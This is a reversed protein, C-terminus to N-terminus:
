SFEFFRSSARQVYPDPLKELELLRGLDFTPAGITLNTAARRLYRYPIAVHDSRMLRLFTAARRQVGAASVLARKGSLVDEYEKRSRLVELGVPYDRDAWISALVVAVGLVSFELAATGNWLFATDVFEALEHTNFADHELFLVNRPLDPVVLERLLQVGQVVIEKRLEHPHPKILLLNDTGTVAEILHNIWSVFDDHAFGRDGPAAFDISVKGLAVFVKGGDARVKQVRRSVHERSRSSEGVNSRDQCIWSMLQDDPERDLHPNEALCAEMRHLGGLYPQRVEPQATLDEVALTTAERSTLNSFYNEYGVSIAVAHIGHSRGIQVCWERIIGQPAFHSDMLAIRIPRSHDALTLLKECLTLAVDARLQLAAFRKASEPDTLDTVRYKRAQQSLREQFYAFYNIGGAEAIGAGWDIRWERSLKQRPAGVFSKGDPAVCGQLNDFDSIRLVQTTLTGQVAAALGYGQEMLPRVLPVMLGTLVPNGVNYILVFGKVNTGTPATIKEVYGNATLHLRAVGLRRADRNRMEDTYDRPHLQQASILDEFVSIALEHHGGDDLARGIGRRLGVSADSFDTEALIKAALDYHGRKSLLLAVPLVREPPATESIWRWSEPQLRWKINAEGLLRVAAKQRGEAIASRIANVEASSPAGSTESTM